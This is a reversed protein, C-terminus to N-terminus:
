AWVMAGDPGRGGTKTPRVLDLVTGNRLGSVADALALFKLAIDKGPEPREGLFKAVAGLALVYRSQLTVVPNPNFKKSPALLSAKLREMLLALDRLLPALDGLSNEASDNSPPTKEM